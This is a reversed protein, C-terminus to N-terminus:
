KTFAMAGPIIGAPHSSIKSGNYDFVELTGSQVYDAANTFYLRNRVTDAIASYFWGSIFNPTFTRTALHIRTVGNELIYAYGQDDQIFRMPHGPLPLSDVISKSAPDILLLSAPTDDNPDNFDNYSGSCLVGITGGPMNMVATPYDGVKLIAVVDLTSTSIVSVTNNQGLGSNAVFVMTGSIALGEPNPGVLINKTISNSAADYVSVSNGYLNTIYGTGKADFMINRPSSGPPCTISRVVKHTAPDIVEIRNSNNVVIYALGNHMTISNGVDGLSRGNVSQFIDNYMAASDPVFYSLSANSRHFNGENVIYLGRQQAPVGPPPNTVVDDSCGTFAVLLSFLLLSRAIM